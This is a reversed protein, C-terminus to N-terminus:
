GTLLHSPVFPHTCPGRQDTPGPAVFAHEGTNSVYQQSADFPPTVGPAQRKEQAFPCGLGAEAGPERKAFPCGPERKEIRAQEVQSQHDASRIQIM